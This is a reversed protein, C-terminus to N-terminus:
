KNVIPSVMSTTLLAPVLTKPTIAEITLSLDIITNVCDLTLM